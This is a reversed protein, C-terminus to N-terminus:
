RHQNESESQSIQNVPNDLPTEVEEMAPDQDRESEVQVQEDYQRFQYIM